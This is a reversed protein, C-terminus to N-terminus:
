DLSMVIHALYQYFTFRLVAGTWALFAYLFPSTCSWENEVEASSICYHDVEPDLRKVGTSSFARVWKVPHQKYGLVSRSTKHLIFIYDPNLGLIM